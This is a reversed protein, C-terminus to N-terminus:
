LYWHQYEISILNNEIGFLGDIYLTSNELPIKFFDGEKIYRNYINSTLIKNGDLDLQFGQILKLRTNIEIGDDAGLKPINQFALHKNPNNKELEIYGSSIERGGGFHVNLKFDTHIDGANWLPIM